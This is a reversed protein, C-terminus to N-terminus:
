AVGEEDAPWGPFVVEARARDPRQILFVAGARHEKVLWRYVDLAERIVDALPVRDMWAALTHLRRLTRAPLNVNFKRIM